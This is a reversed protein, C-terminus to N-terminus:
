NISITDQQISYTFDIGSVRMINLVDEISNDKFSGSFKLNLVDKNRIVITKDYWKELKSVVLNIPDSDFVLIDDKWLVDLPSTANDKTKIKGKTLLLKNADLNEEKLPKVLPLLADTKRLTVKDGPELSLSRSAALDEDYSLEIKGEILSTEVNQEDKYARINFITGLVKVNLIDTQVVLPINENKTVAFYAEGVLKINRHATGFDAEYTIESDGNLWIETGDSLTFHKKEGKATSILYASSIQDKQHHTRFLLSAIGFILAVAAVAYIFKAVRGKLPRYVAAKSSQQSSRDLQKKFGILLEEESLATKRQTTTYDYVTKKREDNEIESFLQRKDSDTIDGKLYQNLLQIFHDDRKQM